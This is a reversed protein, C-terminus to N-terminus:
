VRVENKSVRPGVSRLLCAISTQILKRGTSTGSFRDRCLCRCYGPHFYAITFFLPSAFVYLGSMSPFPPNPGSLPAFFNDELTSNPVQSSIMVAWTAVTLSPDVTAQSYVIPNITSSVAVLVVALRLPPLMHRVLVSKIMVKRLKMRTTMSIMLRTSFKRTLSQLPYLSTTKLCSTKWWM